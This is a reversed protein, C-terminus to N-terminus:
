KSKAVLGNAWKDLPTFSIVVSLAAAATATLLAEDGWFMGYHSGHNLTDVIFTGIFAIAAVGWRSVHLELRSFFSFIIALAATSVGTILAVQWHGITIASLDGKTMATLCAATSQVVHRAGVSFRFKM